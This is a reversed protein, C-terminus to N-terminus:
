KSAYNHKENNKLLDGDDTNDFIALFQQLKENFIMTTEFFTNRSSSCSKINTSEGGLSDINKDLVLSSSFNRNYSNSLDIPSSINNYMSVQEYLASRVSVLTVDQNITSVAIVQRLDLAPKAVVPLINATIVLSLVGGVLLLKSLKM